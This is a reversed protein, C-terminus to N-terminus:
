CVLKSIQFLCAERILCQFLLIFFNLDLSSMRIGFVDDWSVSTPGSLSFIDFPFAVSKEGGVYAVLSVGLVIRSRAPVHAFTELFASSM